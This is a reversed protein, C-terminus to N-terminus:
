KKLLNNIKSNIEDITSNVGKLFDYSDTHIKEMKLGEVEKKSIFNSTILKLIKTQFMKYNGNCLSEFWIDYIVDKLKDKNQKMTTDGLEKNLLSNSDLPNTYQKM